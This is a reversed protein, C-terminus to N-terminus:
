NGSNKDENNKVILTKYHILIGTELAYKVFSGIM